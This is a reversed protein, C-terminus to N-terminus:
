KFLSPGCPLGKEGGAKLMGDMAGWLGGIAIFLAMWKCPVLWFPPMVGLTILGYIILFIAVVAYVALTLIPIKRLIYCLAVMAVGGWIFPIGSVASSLGWDYVNNFHAVLNLGGGIGGFLTAFLMFVVGNLSEGKQFFIIAGVLYGPFCALQVIGVPLELGGDYIGAFWGWFLMTILTFIWTMAPAPDGINKQTNEM